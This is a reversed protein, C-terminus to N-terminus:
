PKDSNTLARTVARAGTVETRPFTQGDQYKGGPPEGASLFRNDPWSQVILVGLLLNKTAINYSRVKTNYGEM